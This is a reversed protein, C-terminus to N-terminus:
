LKKILGEWDEMRKKLVGSSAIFHLARSFNGIGEFEIKMYKEVAKGRGALLIRVAEDYWPDEPHWFGLYKNIIVRKKKVEGDAEIVYHEDSYEPKDLFGAIYAPISTFGPVVNWLDELEEEKMLGREKAKGILKDRIVSIKKLFGIFQERKVGVRVLVFVDSHKIQAGPVDLWIGELKTTKISVKLKPERGDVSKIDSHLFEELQGRKYDLEISVRFREQLWKAFSVEGLFGRISDTWLQGLDRQRSTGYDTAALKPALYLGHLAAKLYDDEDLSVSAWKLCAIWDDYGSFQNVDLGRVAGECLKEESGKFSDPLEGESIASRIRRVCQSFKSSM